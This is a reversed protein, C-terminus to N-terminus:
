LTIDIAVAVHVRDVRELLEPVHRRKSDFLFWATWLDTRGSQEAVHVTVVVDVRYIRQKHQSEDRRKGGISQGLARVDALRESALGSRFSRQNSL